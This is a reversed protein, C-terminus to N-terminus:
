VLGYLRKLIEGDDKFAVGSVAQLFPKLESTAKEITKQKMIIDANEYCKM